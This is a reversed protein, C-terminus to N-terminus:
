GPARQARVEQGVRRHHPRRLVGRRVHIAPRGMARGEERVGGPLQAARGNGEEGRETLRSKVMLAGAAAGSLAITWAMSLGFLWPMSCLVVSLGALLLKDFRDGRVAALATGIIALFAVMDPGGRLGLKHAFLALAGAGAGAALSRMVNIEFVERQHLQLVASHTTSM